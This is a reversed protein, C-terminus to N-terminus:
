TIYNEIIHGLLTIVSDREMVTGNTGSVTGVLNFSPLWQLSLNCLRSACTLVDSFQTDFSLTLM